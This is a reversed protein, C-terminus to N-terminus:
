DAAGRAAKAVCFECKVREGFAGGPQAFLVEKSRGLQIRETGRILMGRASIRHVAAPELVPLLWRGDPGMLGAYLQHRYNTSCPPRDLLLVGRAPVDALVQDRSRKMGEARLRVVDVLM